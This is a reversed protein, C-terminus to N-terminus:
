AVTGPGEARRELWDRVARGTGLPWPRLKDPPVAKVGALEEGLAIDGQARVHYALILQNMETFAYAGIFSIIEGRLGLEEHVERLVGDEPSEDKELFGTVLGYWKEPWGKGRVLLVTQGHEVLAAVVPIPNDYFVYDCSDTSCQLRDRGETTHLRLPAACRPCFKMDQM